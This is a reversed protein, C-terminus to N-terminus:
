IQYVWLMTREKSGRIQRSIRISLSGCSQLILRFSALLNVQSLQIKWVGLILCFTNVDLHYKAWLLSFLALVNCVTHIRSLCTEKKCYQGTLFAWNKCFNWQSDQNISRYKLSEYIDCLQSSASVKLTSESFPEGFLDKQRLLLSNSYKWM